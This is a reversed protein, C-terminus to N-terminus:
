EGSGPAASVKGSMRLAAPPAAADSLIRIQTRRRAEITFETAKSEFREESLRSELLDAVDDFTHGSFEAPHADFWAKAEAPSVRSAQRLRGDLYRRVRLGRELIKQVDEQSVDHTMFDDYVKPGVSARLAHEAAEVEKRTVPFVQLRDAEDEIVLEDILLDLAQSLEKADPTGVLAAAGVRRAGTIRAQLYVDSRLIAHVELPAGGPQASGSPGVVAIIEDLLVPQATPLAPKADAVSLAPWVASLLCTWFGAYRM